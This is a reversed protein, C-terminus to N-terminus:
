RPCPHSLRVKEMHALPKTNMEAVGGASMAIPSITRPSMSVWVSADSFASFCQRSAAPVGSSLTTITRM